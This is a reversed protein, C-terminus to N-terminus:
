TMTRIHQYPLHRFVRRILLNPTRAGGLASLDSVMNTDVPLRAATGYLLLTRCDPNMLQSM